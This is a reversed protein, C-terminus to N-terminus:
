WSLDQQGLVYYTLLFLNLIEQLQDSMWPTHCCASQLQVPQELYVWKHGM